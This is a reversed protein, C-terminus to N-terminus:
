GLRQRWVPYHGTCVYRADLVLLLTLVQKSVQLGFFGYLSWFLSIIKIQKSIARKSCTIFGNWKYHHWGSSSSLWYLHHNRIEYIYTEGVSYKKLSCTCESWLITFPSLARDHRVGSYIYIAIMVFAKFGILHRLPRVGNWPVNCIEFFTSSCGDVWSM